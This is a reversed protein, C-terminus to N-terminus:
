LVDMLLCLQWPWVGADGQQVEPMQHQLIKQQRSTEGVQWNDYMVRAYDRYNILKLHAPLDRLAFVGVETKNSGTTAIDM